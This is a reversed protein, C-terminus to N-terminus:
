PFALNPEQLGKNRCYTFLAGFALRLVQKKLIMDTNHWVKCPSSYFRRAHEFSEEFTHRPKGSNALQEEALVKERELKAIRKDYAAIVSGNSADIIRDLLQDIQKELQKVNAKLGKSAESAQALRMDWADRFMAKVLAFLGETPQLSQLVGEFEGELVDRKISKRYSPCGKTPCLYYPYKEKKGQSWCATLPKDCDSPLRGM